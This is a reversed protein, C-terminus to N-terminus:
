FLVVPCHSFMWEERVAVKEKQFLDPLLRNCCYEACHSGPITEQLLYYSMTYKEKRKATKVHHNLVLVAAFLWM